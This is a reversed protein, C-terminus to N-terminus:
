ICPVQCQIKQFTLTPKLLVNYGKSILHSPTHKHTKRQTSNLNNCDKHFIIQCTILHRLFAEGRQSMQLTAPTYNM